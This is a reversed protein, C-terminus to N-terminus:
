KYRNLIDQYSGDTRMVKLTSNFRDRMDRDAFAAAFVATSKFIDHYEVEDDVKMSGALQRRYWEFVHRDVVIVDVRRAWFVRSQADQTSSQFYNPRLQGNDDPKYRAEFAPGLDAWGRQWIVFRYQDLDGEGTLRIRDEKRTIAYNIYDVMGDSYHLGAEDKGHVSVAVDVQGSRVALLLRAKSVLEIKMGYGLRALALRVVDVEIGALQGSADIYTYPPRDTNFAVTLDAAHAAPALSVALLSALQLARRLSWPLAHKKPLLGTLLSTIWQRM